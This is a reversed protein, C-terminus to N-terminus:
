DTEEIELLEHEGTDGIYIPGNAHDIRIAWEYPVSLRRCVGRWFASSDTEFESFEKLIEKYSVGDFRINMDQLRMFAMHRIELAAATEMEEETAEGIITGPPPLIAYVNETEEIPDHNGFLKSGKRNRM